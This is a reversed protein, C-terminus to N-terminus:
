VGGTEGPGSIAGGADRGGIAGAADRGTLGGAPIPSSVSGIDGPGTITGTNFELDAIILRGIGDELLLYSGSELSLFSTETAM